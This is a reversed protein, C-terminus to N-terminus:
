NCDIRGQTTAPGVPAATGIFLACQVNTTSHDAIVAWGTVTAEAITLTVEDSIQLGNFALVALSSSYVANDYFHSEESQSFHRLDSKMTAVFANERMLSLRPVALASLLGVIVVAILLEILTYGARAANGARGSERINTINRGHLLPRWTNCGALM